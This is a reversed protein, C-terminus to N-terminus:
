AGQKECDLMFVAVPRRKGVFSQESIYSDQVIDEAFFREMVYKRVVYWVAGKTLTYFEEFYEKKGAKLKSLLWKLKLRSM